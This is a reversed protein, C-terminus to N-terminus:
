LLLSRMLFITVASPKDDPRVPRASVGSVRYPYQAPFTLKGHYFGGTRPCFTLVWITCDDSRGHLAINFGGEYPSEQPGNIVYHWEQM